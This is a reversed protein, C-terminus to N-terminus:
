DWSDESDLLAKMLHKSRAYRRDGVPGQDEDGSSDDPLSSALKSLFTFDSEEEGSGEPSEWPMDTISSSQLHHNTVTERQSDEGCERGGRDEEM